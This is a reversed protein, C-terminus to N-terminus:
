MVFLGVCTDYRKLSSMNPGQPAQGGPREIIKRATAVGSGSMINTLINVSASKPGIM